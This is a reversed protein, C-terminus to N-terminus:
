EVKIKISKKEKFDKDMMEELHKDFDGKETILLIAEMEFKLNSDLSNGILAEARAGIKRIPSRVAVDLMLKKMIKNVEDQLERQAKLPDALM